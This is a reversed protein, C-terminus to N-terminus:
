VFVQEQLKYYPYFNRIFFIENSEKNRFRFRIVDSTVDFFLSYKRYSETLTIYTISSTYSIGKWTAGYDTSYDVYLKASSSGKAWVDVQLWRKNFELMDGTFDKSEFIGETLTNIDNTKTYDLYSTSGTSNGFVVQEWEITSSGSDWIDLAEDWTGIDDDWTEGSTKEWIVASTLSSCTDFYWFGNSYNYKWIETPWNEGSIVVFFWVEKLSKIHLSFCREINTRNMRSFVEDRVSTGISEPIGGNWVYFDNAGMFYHNGEAEVVCRSASLGIGSKITVYLFIDITSVKQLLGLSEQKYVATYNNLKMINKIPSPDDSVLLSGANGSSWQEPEGTDNWQIKWPNVGSGDDTHALVIYPTLYTMYKAKPPLGGLSSIDGSGTWKKIANKGNSILILGNEAVNAYSFFEDESGTFDLDGIDEWAETTTNYKDIKTTSNRILLKVGSNLELKSLGMIPSADSIDSGYTTKGPRKVMENRLFRMNKSFGSRDSIFTSPLSWDIGQAPILIGKRLLPM